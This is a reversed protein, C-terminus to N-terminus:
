GARWLSDVPGIGMEGPSQGEVRRYTKNIGGQTEQHHGLVEKGVSWRIEPGRM